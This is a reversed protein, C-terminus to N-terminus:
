SLVWKIKNIAILDIDICCRKVLKMSLMWLSIKFPLHELILFHDKTQHLFLTVVTIVTASLISLLARHCSAVTAINLVQHGLLLACWVIPLLNLTKWAVVQTTLVVKQVGLSLNHELSMRSIWRSDGLELLFQDKIVILALENTFPSAWCSLNNWDAYVCFSASTMLGRWDSMTDISQGVWRALMHLTQWVDNSLDAWLVLSILADVLWKLVESLLLLHSSGFTGTLWCSRFCSCVLLLVLLKICISLLLRVLVVLILELLAQHM